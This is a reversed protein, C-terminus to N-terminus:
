LLYKSTKITRTLFFLLCFYFNQLKSGQPLYPSCFLHILGIQRLMKFSIKLNLKDILLCKIFVTKNTAERTNFILHLYWNWSHLTPFGFMTLALLRCFTCQGRKQWAGKRLDVFQGLRGGGKKKPM